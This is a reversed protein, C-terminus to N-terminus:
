RDVGKEASPTLRALVDALDFRLVKPSLRRGPIRGKRYWELVTAPRIGLRAALAVATLLSDTHRESM